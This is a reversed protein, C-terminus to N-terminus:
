KYFLQMIGPRISWPPLQTQQGPWQRPAGPWQWAHHGQYNGLTTGRIMAERARTMAKTGRSTNLSEQFLHGQGKLMLSPIIYVIQCVRILMKYFSSTKKPKDKLPMTELKTYTLTYTLHWMRVNHLCATCIIVFVRTVMYLYHALQICIYTDLHTAGHLNSRDSQTPIVIM